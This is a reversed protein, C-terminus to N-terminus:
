FIPYVTRIEGDVIRGELKLGDVVIEFYSGETPFTKNRIADDVGRTVLDQWADINPALDKVVTKQLVKPKLVKNGAADLVFTQQPTKEYLQYEQMIVDPRTPHPVSNVIAGNGQTVVLDEFADADHTGKVAGGSIGEGVLLHDVTKPTVGKYSKFFEEGYHRVADGGYKAHLERLKEDWMKRFADRIKPPIKRVVGALLKLAGSKIKRVRDRIANRIGRVTGDRLKRAGAKAQEWRRKAQNKATTYAERAKRKAGDIAWKRFDNANKVLNKIRDRIGQAIQKGRDVARVVADKASKIWGKATDVIKQIASTVAGVIKGLIGRVGDEANDAWQRAADLRGQAWGGMRGLWDRIGNVANQATRRASNAMGRIGNVVRKRLSTASAVIRSGWQRAGKTLGPIRRAAGRWIEGGRARMKQLGRTVHGGLLRAGGKLADGVGPVFAIAVLVLNGWDGGGRWGGEHLRKIAFVLDRLDGIQGAIPVFGLAVQGLTNWGTPHKKADGALAGELLQSAIGGEGDKVEEEAEEKGERLDDRSREDLPVPDAPAVPPVTSRARQEFAGAYAFAEKQHERADRLSDVAGDRTGQASERGESWGEDVQNGIGTIGNWASTAVDRVPDVVHDELWEKGQSVLDKAGEWLDGLFGRQLKRGSPATLPQGPRARAVQQEGASEMETLLDAGVNEAAVEGQVEDANIGELEDEEPEDEVVVEEDEAVEGAAEAGPEPGIEDEAGAPAAAAAGGAEAELGEGSFEVGEEEEADAEQEEEAGAGESEEEQEVAAGGAAAAEVSATEAEVGDLMAQAGAAPGAEELAEAPAAGEPSDGGDAGEADPGTRTPEAAQGLGGPGLTDLGLPGAAAEVAAGAQAEADLPGPGGLEGAAPGAMDAAAAVESARAEHRPEAEREDDAELPAEAAVEEDEELEEAEAQEEDERRLRSLPTAAPTARNSRLAAVVAQNGASRQLALVAEPDLRGAGPRAPAAPLRVEEPTTAPGAPEREHTKSDGM